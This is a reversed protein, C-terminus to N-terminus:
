HLHFNFDKQKDTNAVVITIGLMIFFLVSLDNKFYPVDVLGHIFWTSWAMTLPWSWLNKTLFLKKLTYILYGMMLLFILLGFIGLESWFNLFINHPYLYIELWSNKHYPALTKQYANLGAGFIPRDMLMAWTEQWQSSRIELSSAQLDLVPNFIEQQWISVHSRIPIVFFSVVIILTLIALSFKRIKKALILWFIFSVGLAVLAGQSLSLSSLVLGFLGAVFYLYYNKLKINILGYAILLAAMPASILSLANPYSFIGTLRKANPFNYATIFNWTSFNQYLVLIMLWLVLISLASLVKKLDAPSKVTYVFVIFFMMPELFYARWLGLSAQSFNVILALLGALLWLILLWRWVFPLPNFDSKKLLWNINKYNKDKILWIIFLSIIMLELFTSPLGFIDLRWLYAPLLTTIILIGSLIQRYSLYIFLGGALCLLILSIM